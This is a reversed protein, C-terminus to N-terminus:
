GGKAINIDEESCAFPIKGYDVTAKIFLVCASEVTMGFRGLVTKAENYLESDIEFTITTMAMIIM